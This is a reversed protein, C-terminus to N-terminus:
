STASVNSIAGRGRRASNMSLMRSNGLQTSSPQSSVSVSLSSGSIAALAFSCLLASLPRPLFHFHGRFLHFRNRCRDLSWIEHATRPRAGNLSESEARRPWRADFVMQMSTQPTFRRGLNNAGPSTSAVPTLVTSDLSMSLSCYLPRRQAAM